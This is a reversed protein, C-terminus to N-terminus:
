PQDDACNLSPAPGGELGHVVADAFGACCVRARGNAKARYLAEDTRRLLDVVREAGAPPAPDMGDRAASCGVGISVTVQASTTSAEHPLGLAVVAGLMQHALHRAGVAPTQPMLVAFEEGGYRAVLDAPRRAAGALAQAVARLCADGAPHGYRDNYHKFHDVDILLLSTPEGTRCSRQWERELAADLSRRNAIGTVADSTALQRLDDTLRKIRLQTKVRARLLPESIPKAIFDVAGAELGKLEHETGGHSTVFIVPVDELDPDGHLAACLEYGNMGPMDADLLVLDPPERRIQELATEGHTAFRLRGHGELIRAMRQIMGPDNDVLLIEPLLM